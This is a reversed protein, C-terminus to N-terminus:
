TKLKISIWLRADVANYGQMDEFKHSTTVRECCLIFYSFALTMHLAHATVSVCETDETITMSSINQGQSDTIQPLKKQETSFLFPCIFADSEDSSYSDLM